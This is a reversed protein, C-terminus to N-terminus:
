LMHPNDKHDLHPTYYLAPRFNAIYGTGRTRKSEGGARVILSNKNGAVPSLPRVMTMGQLSAVETIGPTTPRTFTSRILLHEKVPMAM